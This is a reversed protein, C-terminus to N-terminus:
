VCNYAFHAMISELDVKKVKYTQIEGGQYVVRIHNNELKELRKVQDLNILHEKIRIFSM